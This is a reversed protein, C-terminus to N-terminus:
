FTSVISPNFFMILRKFSNDSLLFIINGIWGRVFDFRFLKPNRISFEIECFIVIASGM